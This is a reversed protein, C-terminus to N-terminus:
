LQETAGNGPPPAYLSQHDCGVVFCSYIVGPVYGCCTLVLSIFSHSGCDKRGEARALSPLTHSVSCVHLPALYLTPQHLARLCLLACLLASPPARACQLAVGRGAASHPVSDPSRVTTRCTTAAGGM